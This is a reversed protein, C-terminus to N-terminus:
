RKRVSGGRQPRLNGVFEGFSAYTKDVSFEPIKRFRDAIARIDQTGEADVYASFSSHTDRKLLWLKLVEHVFEPLDRASVRDIQRAL